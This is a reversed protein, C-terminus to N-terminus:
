EREAVTFDYAGADTRRVDVRLGTMDIECEAMYQEALQSLAVPCAGRRMALRMMHQFLPSHFRKDVIKMRTNM